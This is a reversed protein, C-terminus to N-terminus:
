KGSWEEMFPFFAKLVPTVTNVKKAPIEIGLSRFPHKAVFSSPNDVGPVFTECGNFTVIVKTESFIRNHYKWGRFLYVQNVESWLIRRITVIGFLRVGVGKSDLTYSFGFKILAMGACVSLVEFPLSHRPAVADIISAYVGLALLIAMIFLSGWQPAITVVKNDDM